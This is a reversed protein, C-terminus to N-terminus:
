KILKHVMVMHMAKHTASIAKINVLQYDASYRPQSKLYDQTVFVNWFWNVPEQTFLTTPM